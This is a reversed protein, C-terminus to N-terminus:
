DNVDMKLLSSNEGFLSSSCNSSPMMKRTTLPVLLSEVVWSSMWGLEIESWRGTKWPPSSGWRRLVGRYGDGGGVRLTLRTRPPACGSVELCCPSIWDTAKRYCRNVRWSSCPSDHMSRHPNTPNTQTSDPSLSSRQNRLAQHLQGTPPGDLVAASSPSPADDCPPLTSDDTEDVAPKSNLSPM